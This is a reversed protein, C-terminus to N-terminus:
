GPAGPLPSYGPSATETTKLRHLRGAFLPDAFINNCKSNPILSKLSKIKLNNRNKHPITYVTGPIEQITNLWTQEGKANHSFWLKNKSTCFIDFFFSSFISKKRRPTLAM